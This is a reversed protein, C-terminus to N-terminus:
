KIRQKGYEVGNQNDSITTLKYVNISKKEPKKESLLEKLKERGRKLRSKVGSLTGGQIEKIEELSFGNIEFLVVTRKQKEPLKELAEYLMKVELKTDPLAENAQWRDESPDLPSFRTARKKRKINMRSAISFLFSVFAEPHRVSDFRKYAELITESALDLADERNGAIANCFRSLNDRVPEFLELFIKQKNDL